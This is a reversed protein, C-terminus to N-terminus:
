SENMGSVGPRELIRRLLVSQADMAARLEALQAALGSQSQVLPSQMEEHESTRTAAAVHSQGEYSDPRARLRTLLPPLFQRLWLKTQYLSQAHPFSRVLESQGHRNGSQMYPTHTIQGSTMENWVQSFERGLVFSPLAILLLGFILLPLTVLRGLFSRPTM